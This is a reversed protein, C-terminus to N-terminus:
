TQFGSFTTSPWWFFQGLCPPDYLQDCATSIHYMTKIDFVGRPTPCFNSNISIARLFRNVAPHTAAATDWGFFHALSIVSSCYNRVVKPSLSSKTLFELFILLNRASLEIPLNYFILVSLFTKFHTQHAQVTAPRHATIVRSWASSLLGQPDPVSGSIIHVFQPYLLQCSSCGM